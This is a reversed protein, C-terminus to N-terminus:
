VVPGRNEFGPDKEALGEMAKCDFLDIETQQLSDWIFYNALM